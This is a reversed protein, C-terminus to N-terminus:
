QRLTCVEGSIYVLVKGRGMRLVDQRQNVFLQLYQEIEQNVWETQGDSQPHYATSTAVKIGLLKNLEPMFQSVFQTGHYSIVEEPLGHLKWIHNCFLRAIGVSNVDSTTPIVHACKSLHDVTVLLNNYGQRIPLETILNVTIVQWRRDPICNPLLKSIPSAPFTKTRNCPDCARVYKAIYQGM